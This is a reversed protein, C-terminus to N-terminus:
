AHVEQDFLVMIREEEEEGGGGGEIASECITREVPICPPLFRAGAPWSSLRPPPSPSVVECAVNAAIRRDFEISECFCPPSSFLVAFPPPPNSALQM